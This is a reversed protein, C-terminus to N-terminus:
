LAVECYLDSDAQAATPKRPPRPPARSRKPVAVASVGASTRGTRATARLEVSAYGDGSEDAADNTRPPRKPPPTKPLQRHPSAPSTGPAISAASEGGSSSSPPPLLSAYSVFAPLAPPKASSTKNKKDSKASQQLQPMAKLNRNSGVDDEEREEEEKMGGDDDDDDPWKVNKKGKNNRKHQGKPQPQPQNAKAPRSVGGAGDLVPFAYPSLWADDDAASAPQGQVKPRKVVRASHYVVSSGGASEAGTTEGDDDAAVFPQGGGGKLLAPPDKRSIISMYANSPGSELLGSQQGVATACRWFTLFEIRTSHQTLAHSPPHLHTPFFSCPNGATIVPFTDGATDPAYHRRLDQLAAVYAREVHSFDEEGRQRGHATSAPSHRCLL